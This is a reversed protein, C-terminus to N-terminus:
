DTEDERTAACIIWRWTTRGALSDARIRRHSGGRDSISRAMTDGGQLRHRERHLRIISASHDERNLRLPEDRSGRHCGGIRASASASPKFSHIKEAV